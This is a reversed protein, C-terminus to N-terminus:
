QMAGRSCNDGACRRKCLAAGAIHSAPQGNCLAKHVTGLAKDEFNDQLKRFGRGIDKIAKARGKEMSAARLQLMCLTAQVVDVYM